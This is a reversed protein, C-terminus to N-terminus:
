RSLWTPFWTPWGLGLRTKYVRDREASELWTMQNPQIKISNATIPRIFLLDVGHDGPLFRFDRVFKLESGDVWVKNERGFYVNEYLGSLNPLSIKEITQSRRSDFIIDISKDTTVIKKDFDSVEVLNIRVCLVVAGLGISVIGIWVDKNFSKIGRFINNFMWVICLISFPLTWKFYHINGYQWLGNPLLDSYPLYAMFQILITLVLLRLTKNGRLAIFAFAAISLSLWPMKKYIAQDKIGYLTQSDLFISIFKEVMDLPHFGNGQANVAFYRGEISGHVYINFLLFFLVGMFGFFLLGGACALKSVFRSSNGFKSFFISVLVVIYFPIMVIAEVPRTAAIVGGILGWVCGVLLSPAIQKSISKDFSWFLYAILPAVLTTTWPEVWLRLLTQGPFFLQPGLKYYRLLEGSYFSIFYVTVAGTWTIYKKAFDVFLYSFAIFCFINVPLFAHMPLYRVFLSGIMPYIPPYYYKASDWDFISTAKAAKLYEGQDFWGWWGLPYLPNNGPLAEHSFYAVLYLATLILIFLQNRYRLMFNDKSLFLKNKNILSM